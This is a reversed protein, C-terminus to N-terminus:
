REPGTPREWGGTLLLYGLRDAALDVPLLAETAPGAVVAGGRAPDFQCGDFPCEDVGQGDPGGRPRWQLLSGCHTCAAGFAAFAGDLGTPRAAELRHVLVGYPRRSVLHEPYALVAQLAGPREFDTARVFLDEDHVHGDLSGEDPEVHAYVLRQGALGADAGAPDVRDVTLDGLTVLGAGLFGGLGLGGLWGLYRRRTAGTADPGTPSNTTPM